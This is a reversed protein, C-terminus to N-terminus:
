KEELEEEKKQLEGIPGKLLSMATLEHFWRQIGVAMPIKGAKIDNGDWMVTGSEFVTQDGDVRVAFIMTGRVNGGYKGNDDMVMELRNAGDDRSLVKFFGVILDGPVFALKQIQYDYLAGQEEPPSNRLFYRFMYGQPMNAFGSMSIRLWSTILEMPTLKPLTSTPVAYEFYDAFVKAGEQLAEDPLNAPKRHKYPGFDSYKMKVVKSLRSYSHRAYLTGAAPVLILAAAAIVLGRHKALSHIFDSM